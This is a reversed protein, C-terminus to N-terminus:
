FDESFGAEHWSDAAPIVLTDLLGWPDSCRRTSRCQREQLLAARCTKITHPANNDPLCLSPGSLVHAAYRCQKFSTSKSAGSRVAMHTQLPSGAQLGESCVRVCPRLFGHRAARSATLTRLRSKKLLWFVVLCAVSPTSAYKEKPFKPTLSKGM